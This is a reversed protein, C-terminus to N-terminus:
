DQWEAMEREVEEQTFTDGAAIQADAIELDRLVYLWEIADAVTADEPLKQLSKLIDAKTYPRHTRIAVHSAESM